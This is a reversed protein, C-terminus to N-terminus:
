YQRGWITWTFPGGYSRLITNSKWSCTKKALNDLTSVRKPASHARWSRWSKSHLLSLASRRSPQVMVEEELTNDLQGVIHVSTHPPIRVKTKLLVRSVSVIRKGSKLVEAKLKVVQINNSQDNLDIQANNASPFNLAIPWNHRCNDCIMEITDM